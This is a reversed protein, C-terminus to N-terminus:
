GNSHITRDMDPRFRQPVNHVASRPSSRSFLAIRSHDHEGRSLPPDIIPDVIPYCPKRLTYVSARCAQLVSLSSRLCLPEVRFTNANAALMSSIQLQADLRGFNINM